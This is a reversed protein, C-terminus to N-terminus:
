IDRRYFDEHVELENGDLIQTMFFVEIGDMKQSMFAELIYIRTWKKHCPERGNKPAYISNMKRPKRTM